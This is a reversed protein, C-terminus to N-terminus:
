RVNEPFNCCMIACIYPFYSFLKTKQTPANSLVYHGKLSSKQRFIRIAAIHKLSDGDFHPVKKEYLTHLLVVVLLALKKQICENRSLM